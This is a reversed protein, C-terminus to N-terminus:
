SSPGQRSSGTSTVIDVAVLGGGADRAHLELLEGGRGAKVVVEDGKGYRPELGAREALTYHYELVDELSLPTLYTVSRVTCGSGDAGAGEVVAGRPIPRAHDPLRAAWIASYDLRDVCSRAVGAREAREAASMTETWSAPRELIGPAPLAPAPGGEVLLLRTEDRAAAIAQPGADVPPISHDFSVTLLANGENLSALDPDTMLPDNLAQQILPDDFGAPLAPEAEPACGALAASLLLAHMLSPSRMVGRIEKGSTRVGQRPRAFFM